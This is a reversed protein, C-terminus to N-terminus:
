VLRTVVVPNAFCAMCVTSDSDVRLAEARPVDPSFFREIDAIGSQGVTAISPQLVM